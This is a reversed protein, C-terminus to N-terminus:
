PRRWFSLRLLVLVPIIEIRGIWMMGTMLLKSARPYTVYSGFPGAQGFAPGVNFFTSAAAGIAEFETVAHGVRSSIVVIAVSGLLFAIISILTYSYVDRITAEDVVQGSLRVPRVSEPKAAVALDRDFAKAVVLWRFTKISCTTSGAMGGLFMCVFLLQKAPASWLDFDVSAFGSTTVISFSQFVAHRITAEVTEFEADAFLVTALVVSLTALIGVYFWFEESNRLRELNGQLVAYLLVFNTAGLAMCPVLVWQVIPSFAGVSEARPSFGATALSTLAHSVADFATMEPALGSVGLLWLVVTATATLGVYLGVLIRATDAFRSTLRTVDQIQSETEMLKAGGVSLRSLVATAVILIGLGGLWQIVQRWLLVARSHADFDVLVTAGTTTIGSTSEFLANVWDGFVGSGALWLPIAGVVAVALWVLAVLLFAERDNFEWEDTLRRLGQGVVLSVVIAAAFPVIDEGDYIALVLSPVLAVTLWTLVSGVLSVSTRWDVGGIM